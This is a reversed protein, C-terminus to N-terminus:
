LWCGTLKALCLSQFCNSHSQEFWSAGPFSVIFLCLSSNRPRCCYGKFKQQNALSSLVEPLQQEQGLLVKNLSSLCLFVGWFVCVREVAGTLLFLFCKGPVGLASTSHLKPRHNLRIPAAGRASSVALHLWARWVRWGYTTWTRQPPPLPWLYVLLSLPLFGLFLFCSFVTM